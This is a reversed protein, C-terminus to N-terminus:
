VQKFVVIRDYNGDKEFNANRIDTVVFDIDEHLSSWIEERNTPRNYVLKQFFIWQFERFFVTQKQDINTNSKSNTKSNVATTITEIPEYWYRVVFFPTFTLTM